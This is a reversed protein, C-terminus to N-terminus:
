TKCIFILFLGPLEKDKACVSAMFQEVSYIKWAKDLGHYINYPFSALAIRGVSVVWLNHFISHRQEDVRCKCFGLQQGIKVSISMFILFLNLLLPLSKQSAHPGNFLENESNQIVTLRPDSGDCCIAKIM